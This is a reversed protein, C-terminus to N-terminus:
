FSFFAGGLLKSWQLFESYLTRASAVTVMMVNVMMITVPLVMLLSWRVEYQEVFADEKNDDGTGPKSTM